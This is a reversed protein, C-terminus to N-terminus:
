WSDIGWMDAHREIKSDLHEWREVMDSLDPLKDLLKLDQQISHRLEHVFEKDDASLANDGAAEKVEAIESRYFSIEDVLFDFEDIRATITDAKFQLTQLYNKRFNQLVDADVETNTGM